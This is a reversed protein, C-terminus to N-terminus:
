KTPILCVGLRYNKLDKDLSLQVKKLSTTSTWGLRGDNSSDRAVVLSELAIPSVEIQEHKQVEEKVSSYAEYVRKKLIPKSKALAESYSSAIIYLREDIPTIGPRRPDDDHYNSKYHAEWVMIGTPLTELNMSNNEAM